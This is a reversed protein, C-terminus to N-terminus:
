VRLYRWLHGCNELQREDGFRSDKNIAPLETVALIEVFSIRILVARFYDPSAM